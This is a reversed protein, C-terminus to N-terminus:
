RNYLGLHAWLYETIAPYVPLLLRPQSPPRRAPLQVRLHWAPEVSPALFISHGRELLTAWLLCRRGELISPMTPWSFRTLQLCGDCGVAARARVAKCGADPTAVPPALRQAARIDILPSYSFRQCSAQLLPTGGPWTHHELMGM